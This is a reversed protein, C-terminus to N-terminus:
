ENNVPKKRRRARRRRPKEMGPLVEGGASDAKKPVESNARGVGPKGGPRSPRRGEFLRVKKLELEHEAFVLRVATELGTRPPNM